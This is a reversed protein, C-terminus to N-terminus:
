YCYPKMLPLTIDWHRLWGDSGDICRSRVFGHSNGTAGGSLDGHLIGIRELHHGGDCQPLALAPTTLWPYRRACHRVRAANPQVSRKEAYLWRWALGAVVM